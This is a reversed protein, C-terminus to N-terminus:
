EAKLDKLITGSEYSLNIIALQCENQRAVVSARAHDLNLQVDLLDVVPSLSNEFRSKVLKKGEEAANLASQSLEVNKQAEEVALYAEHIKFSVFQKLGKLQEETEAAKHRAKSREHERNTGDFFDWRLAASVRWSEGESGFVRNHDNLQYAGGVGLSPLYMSEALKISNKANEHRLQLAKVDRRSLSAAEYYDINKVPLDIDEESVDISEAMGLILGLMRRSVASNKRASVIKQEAEIVSTKTRLVDSYLGLGNRYRSEAIRAHERADELTKETVALQAKLTRAQLYAQSAKFVIEEKKRNHIESQASYEKKAMNLGILYKGVFIPQEISFLTQLDSTPKPNNLSFIDFDSQAFREQNLKMMFVGPPNNTRTAREEFSLRPLLYSRAIGIDEKQAFLSYRSSRIEHNHELAVRIAEILDVRKEGAAGPVSAAIMMLATVLFLYLCRILMM